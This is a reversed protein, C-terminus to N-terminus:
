NYNNLMKLSVNFDVNEFLITDKTRAFTTSSATMDVKYLGAVSQGADVSVVMGSNGNIYYLARADAKEDSGCPVYCTYPYTGVHDLLCGDFYVRFKIAVDNDVRFNALDLNSLRVSNPNLLTCNNSAADYGAGNLTGLFHGADVMAYQAGIEAYIDMSIAKYSYESSDNLIDLTIVLDNFGFTQNSARVILDYDKFYNSANNSTVYNWNFTVESNCATGTEYNINSGNSIYKLGTNSEATFNHTSPYFVLNEDAFSFTSQPTENNSPSTLLIPNEGKVNLKFGSTRKDGESNQDNSVVNGTPTEEGCAALVLMSSILLIVNKKM